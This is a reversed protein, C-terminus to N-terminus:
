IEWLPEEDDSDWLEECVQDYEDYDTNKMQEEEKRNKMKERINRYVERAKPLAKEEAFTQMKEMAAAAGFVAATAAGTGIICAGVSFLVLLPTSVTEGMLFTYLLESFEIIGFGCAYFLILMVLIEVVLMITELVTESTAADEDSVRAIEDAAQAQAGVDQGIVEPFLALQSHITGNASAIYISAATVLWHEEKTWNVTQAEETQDSEAQAAESEASEAQAAGTLDSETQGAEAHTGETQEAEFEEAEIEESEMQRAEAHTGETQEAEFEEAEIEESEMQRSEAQTREAQVREAQEEASQANAPQIPQGEANEVGAGAVEAEPQRRESFAEETLEEEAAKLFQTMERVALICTEGYLIQYLGEKLDEEPLEALFRAMEGTMDAYELDKHMIQYLSMLFGKKQATTMNKTCEEIKDQLLIDVDGMEKYYKVEAAGQRIGAQMKRCARKLEEPSRDPCIQHMAQILDEEEVKEGDLLSVLQKRIAKIKEMQEKVKDEAM